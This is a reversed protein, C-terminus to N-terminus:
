IQASLLKCEQLSFIKDAARDEEHQSQREGVVGELILECGQRSDTYLRITGLVVFRMRRFHSLSHPLPGLELMRDELM